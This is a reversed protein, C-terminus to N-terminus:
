KEGERKMEIIPIMEKYLEESDAVVQFGNKKYFRIARENYVAVKLTTEKGDIWEDALNM